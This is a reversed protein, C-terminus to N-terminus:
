RNAASQQRCWSQWMGRLAGAFHHAFRPADFIPSALVRERLGSRLTALANRDRAHAVGRAVYDDADVAIWEPLGANTLLGVGQRSLFTTGALTLVPVGMYLSEVTTTIGQYPFPDLSIDVRQFPYLHQGTPVHSILILRQADIGHVAFRDVMAQRVAEDSFQKGKILLQSEPVAGLLRAWLAVVSDNIKNLNNFSGFTIRDNSLAPLPTVQAHAAPPTFCVYCEPLHWIKETFFRQEAEPLTWADAIVYDIAAVGTTALYGLWTAQVPAPKWAFMSLRNHESHGSLDILVDIRDDRIQRAFAEDSLRVASHWGQCSAKIRETVDDLVYHTPYGYLELQGRAAAAIAALVADLFHGVVHNRFDGSVLGVRLCRDPEPTNPWDTFPRAKRAALEGFHVAEAFMAEAGGDARYNLCFLLNSQAVTFDPNIRLAERFSAAAEDARGLDNLAIGANSHAFPHDPKLELTRRFSALAENSL